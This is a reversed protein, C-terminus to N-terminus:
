LSCKIATAEPHDLGVQGPAQPSALWLEQSIAATGERGGSGGRKGASGRHGREGLGKKRLSRGERCKTVNKYAKWKFIM